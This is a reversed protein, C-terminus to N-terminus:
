RVDHSHPKVAGVIKQPQGAFNRKSAFKKGITDGLSSLFRIAMEDTSISVESKAAQADEEAKEEAQTMKEIEPNMGLYARHGFM